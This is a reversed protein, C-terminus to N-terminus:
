RELYIESPDEKEKTLNLVPRLRCTRTGFVAALIAGVAICIDGLNFTLESLPKCRSEVALYDVVKGRVFRDIINSFAGGTLLAMGTKELKKGKKTCLRLTRLVLAGGLLASLKRVLEPRDDLLNCAAGKNYVRRLVLPGDFIRREEGEPLFDEVSKKLIQDGATIAAISFLYFTM